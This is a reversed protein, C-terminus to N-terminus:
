SVNLSEAGHDAGVLHGYARDHRKARQEFVTTQRHRSGRHNRPQGTAPTWTAQTTPVRQRQHAQTTRPTGVHGSSPVDQRREPPQQPESKRTRVPPRAVPQRDGPSGVWRVTKLNPISEARVRRAELAARPGAPQVGDRPRTPWRAPHGRAGVACATVCMWTRGVRV